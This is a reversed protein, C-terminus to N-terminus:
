SLLKHVDFCAYAEVYVEAPARFLPRGLTLNFTMEPRGAAAIVLMLYDQLM